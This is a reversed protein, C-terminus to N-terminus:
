VVYNNSFELLFHVEDDDDQDAAVAEPEVEDDVAQGTNRKPQFEQVAETDVCWMYLCVITM